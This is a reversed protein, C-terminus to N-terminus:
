HLLVSICSIDDRYFICELKWKRTAQDILAKCIKETDGGGQLRAAITATFAQEELKEWLGDSGVILMRRSSDNQFIKVEPMCTMGVRHGIQDGFSRSMM